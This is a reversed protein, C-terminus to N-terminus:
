ACNVTVAHSHAETTSSVVTVTGGAKLTARQAATLTVTHTHTATGRIDYATDVMPDYGAGPELDSNALVLAHGHNGAIGAGCSSAAPGAAPSPAPSDGGGGGGCGALTLLSWAVLVRGCLHGCLRGCFDKRSLTEDM